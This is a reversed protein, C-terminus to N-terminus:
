GFVTLDCEVKRVNSVCISNRYPACSLHYKVLSMCEELCDCRVTISPTQRPSAWRTCTRHPIQDGSACCSLECRRRSRRPSQTMKSRSRSIRGSSKMARRAASSTCVIQLNRVDLAIPMIAQTPNQQMHRPVTSPVTKPSHFFTPGSMWTPNFFM